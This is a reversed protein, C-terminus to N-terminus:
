IEAVTEMDVGLPFYRFGDGAKAVHGIGPWAFHYALIPTRNSALMDLMRVRSEASQAPDTDYAFQTRPHELLLVPHHALDATYCLQHGDHDIMFITHSVTHGPASLATIGPLIEENDKYFQLRDKVPLLNRQAQNLFHARAPSNAPIKSDSTWYDFDPEGIFYQANPFNLKGDAAVIGGCHDIHAHSMVVADVGAPDIGAARLSSMMKGTSAGFLDDTGMGTDFLVVRDGLNAVLINQELVAAQASLFNDHLERDIEEKTIKLFADAPKGLPLQGDSVVTCEAGGLKFRYFYPAQPLGSPIKAIAQGPLALSAAGLAACTMLGRRTLATRGLSPM